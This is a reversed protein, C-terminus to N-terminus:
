PPDGPYVTGRARPRWLKAPGHQVSVGAGGCKPCEWWEPKTNIFHLLWGMGKCLTCTM